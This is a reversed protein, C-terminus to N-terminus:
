LSASMDQYRCPTSCDIDISLFSSLLLSLPTAVRNTAFGIM